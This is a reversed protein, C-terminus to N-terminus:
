KIIKNIEKALARYAKVGSADKDLLVAALGFGPAEALRINRPIYTKFVKDAFHKILEDSVQNALNNRSDYMTRILGLLELQPNIGNKLRNVTSLLDTLGELAYYECQIPVIFKNAAALGNLTLLSLSPPCDIIIVDYDKVVHALVSKLRFERNDEGVLEIEAGALNRNAPLIDYHCNSAHIIADKIHCSGLLVEYITKELAHKEIGSGTTANGQSDLDVVLVKRKLAVLSAAINIVSTTKGVGGKQNTIAIINNM